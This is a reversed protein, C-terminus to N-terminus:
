GLHVTDHSIEPRTALVRELDDLWNALRRQRLSHDTTGSVFEEVDMPTWEGPTTPSYEYNGGNVLLGLSELTSRHRSYSSKSVGAEELIAARQMPQESRFLASMMKSASPALWPYVSGPRVCGLGRLIERETIDHDISHLRDAALLADAVDFPSPFRAEEICSDGPDVLM